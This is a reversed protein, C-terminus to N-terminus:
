GRRRMAVGAGIALAIAGIIAAAPIPFPVGRSPRAPDRRASANAAMAKQLWDMVEHVRVARAPSGDCNQSTTASVIGVVTEGEPVGSRLFLPGGSDGECASAPGDVSLHPQVQSVAVTGVRKVGFAAAASAGFGVVSLRLGADIRAPRASRDLRAPPVEGVPEDLFCLAVDWRSGPGGDPHAVCRSARVDRNRGDAFPGVRVTTPGDGCHAAYLVTQPGILTGTCRSGVQVVALHEGPAVVDAGELGTADAPWLAAASLALGVLSARRRRSM